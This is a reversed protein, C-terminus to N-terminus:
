SQMSFSRVSYGPFRNTRKSNWSEYFIEIVVLTNIVFYGMFNAKNRIIKENFLMIM